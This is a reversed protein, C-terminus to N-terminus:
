INDVVRCAWSEAVPEVHELGPHTADMLGLDVTM